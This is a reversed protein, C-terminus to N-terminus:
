ENQQGPSPSSEDYFDDPSNTDQGPANRAISHGGEVDPIFDDETWIGANVAANEWTQDGGGYEIYDIIHLSSHTTSDFLAVWGKSDGMNDDFGTTGTYLHAVNDSFDTDDTGNSRWHVVVFAGSPVSLTPFTYYDGSVANLDYGTITVSITGTNKLEIWEKGIDTGSPDYMVENIVVDTTVPITTTTTTTTSSTSTTPEETTTTTSTTSPTISTTTSEITTTSSTTSSTTSTTSSTTSTSTSTTTTIPRCSAQVYGEEQAEEESFFCVLNEQNIRKAWTCHCYHYKDSNKSGVFNTGYPCDLEECLPDGETITTSTTSTTEETTTTSTVSTTTTEQTTSTTTSELTATTPITTEEIRFTETIKGTGTPRFIVVISTLALFALAVFLFIKRNFM